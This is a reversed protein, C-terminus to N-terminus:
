GIPVLGGRATWIRSLVTHTYIIGKPYEIQPIVALLIAVRQLTERWYKVSRMRICKYFPPTRYLIGVINILLIYIEQFALYTYM